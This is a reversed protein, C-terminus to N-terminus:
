GWMLRIIVAELLQTSNLCMIIQLNHLIIDINPSDQSTSFDDFLRWLFPRIVATSCIHCVACVFFTEFLLM